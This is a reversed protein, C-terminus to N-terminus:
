GPNAPSAAPRRRPFRPRASDPGLDIGLHQLRLKVANVNRGFHGSLTQWSSGTGYMELLTEDDAASWKLFSNPYRTRFESMRLRDWDLFPILLAMKEQESLVSFWRLLREPSGNKVLMEMQEPRFGCVARDFEWGEYEPTLETDLTEAVATLSDMLIDTLADYAISRQSALFAEIRPVAESIMKKMTKLIMINTALPDLSEKVPIESGPM